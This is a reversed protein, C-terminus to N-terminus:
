CHYILRESVMDETIMVDQFEKLVEVWISDLIRNFNASVLNQNLTVLNKDLYEM